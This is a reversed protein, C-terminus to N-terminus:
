GQSMISITVRRNIQRGEPQSNDAAPTSEGLSRLVTHDIPVGMKKMQKQTSLARRQALGINYEDSHNSDTHGTILFLPLDGTSYNLLYSQLREIDDRRLDSSDNDFRLVIEPTLNLELEGLDTTSDLQKSLDLAKQNSFAHSFYVREKTMQNTSTTTVCGSILGSALLLISINKPSNNVFDWRFRRKM